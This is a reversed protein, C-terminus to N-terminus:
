KPWYAKMLRRKLPEEIDFLEVEDGCCAYEQVYVTGEQDEMFLYDQGDHQFYSLVQYAKICREECSRYLLSMERIYETGDEATCVQYYRKKEKGSMVAYALYNEMPNWDM